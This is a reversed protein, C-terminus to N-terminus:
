SLFTLGANKSIKKRSCNYSMDFHWARKMKLPSIETDIRQTPSCLTEVIRDHFSTAINLLVWLLVHTSSDRSYSLAIEHSTYLQSCVCCVTLFWSIAPKFIVLFILIVIRVISDISTNGIWNFGMIYFTICRRLDYNLRLLHIPSFEM